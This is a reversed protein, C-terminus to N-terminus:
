AQLHDPAREFTILGTCSDSHVLFSLNERKPYRSHWRGSAGRAFAVAVKLILYNLVAVAKQDRSLVTSDMWSQRNKRSCTVPVSSLTREGVECFSRVPIVHKIKILMM